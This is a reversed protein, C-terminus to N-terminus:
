ILPPKKLFTKDLATGPPNAYAKPTNIMTSNRSFLTNPTLGVPTEVRSGIENCCVTPPSYKDLKPLIEERINNNQHLLAYNYTKLGGIKGKDEAIELIRDKSMHKYVADNENEIIHIAM